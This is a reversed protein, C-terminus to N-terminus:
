NLKKEVRSKCKSYQSQPHACIVTTRKTTVPSMLFRDNPTFKNQVNTATTTTTTTIITDSKKFQSSTIRLDSSSTSTTSTNINSNTNSCVVRTIAPHKFPSSQISSTSAHSTATNPTLNIILDNSITTPQISSTILCVKFISFLFFLSNNLRSYKLYKKMLQCKTMMLFRGFSRIM